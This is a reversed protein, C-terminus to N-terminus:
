GAVGSASRRLQRRSTVGLKAFIKRLHWEVTRPSIFLRTGIEPNTLGERVLRLIQSEQATLEGPPEAARRRVQEGTALLERAARQSFARMGMATFAEHATRLQERADRQRRRRRLWEGYLLHARALEGRVRTRGLRDIAERYHEEASAGTGVLARSRAALGLAWDTGCVRALDDFRRLAADAERPAGGRVAAEVREPLTWAETVVGGLRDCADEPAATPVDGYRGLSNNLVAMAWRGVTTDDGGGRRAAEAAVSRALAAADAERGQWAALALAGYPPWPNEVVESVTELEAVLAAAAAPEGGVLKAITHSTLALPLDTARGTDRTLRLHRSTLENWTDYDWLTAAALGAPWSWRLADEDPVDPARFAGVASKLAGAGAALGETLCLAMGDLLRDAVRPAAQPPPASRAAAAAESLAASDAPHGAFLAAGIAELYTDRALPADHPQLRRAAELLLLASAGDRKTSFAIQARLLEVRCRLRRDLPAAEAISLLRLATRPAGAQHAAQAATLARGQRHAPDPTLEVARGLFAATGAAGGRAGARRASRELEAAVDEAPASAAQATHWARRDADTVPDTVEALAGHTRRREEPSATWYAASRALPHDFRVRDGIHVLGASVAPAAAEPGVGLREAARWLLVPDGGPEAAAVLLLRRTPSALRAVRRQYIDQVRDGSVRAGPPGFGGALEARSAERSLELLARPNGRTEDVIRELVREDWPGPVVARLLTSADRAPLGTVVLEPLGTLAADPDASGTPEPAPGPVPDPARTALIIAVSETRLRRATFTLVELSARDLWQADDVLCLLPRNRATESLLGLVALGLVFLDPAPGLRLGFAIRLAERQPDPLRPLLDTMPVCLRHLGAFDLGCESQVGAVRSVDFGHAREGAHDLLATKGAGPEGRLVLARSAGDRVDQLMADLRAREERRGHLPRFGNGRDM